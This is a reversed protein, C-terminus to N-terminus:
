TGLFRKKWNLLTHLLVWPNLTLTAREIHFFFLNQCPVWSSFPRGIDARHHQLLISLILQVSLLNLSLVSSSIPFCLSSIFVILFSWSNKKPDHGAFFVDQLVETQCSSYRGWSRPSSSSYFIHSADLFHHRASQTDFLEQLHASMTLLPLGHDGVDETVQCM